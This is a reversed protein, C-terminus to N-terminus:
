ADSSTAHSKRWLRVMNPAMHPLVVYPYLQRGRLNKSFTQLATTMSAVSSLFGTFCSGLPHSPYCRYRRELSCLFVQNTWISPSSIHHHFCLRPARSCSFPQSEISLPIAQNSRKIPGSRLVLRLSWARKPWCHGLILFGIKSLNPNLNAESNPPNLCIRYASSSVPTMRRNEIAPAQVTQLQPSGIWLPLPFARPRGNRPM